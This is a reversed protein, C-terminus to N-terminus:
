FQGASLLDEVDAASPLEIIIPFHNRLGNAVATRSIIHDLFHWLEPSDWIYLHDMNILCLNVDVRNGSLIWNRTSPRTEWDNFYKEM